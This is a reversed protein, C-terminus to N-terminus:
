EQQSPRLAETLRTALKARDATKEIVAHLRVALDPDIEDPTGTHAITRIGAEIAHMMVEHGMALVPMRLDSIVVDVGGTMMLQKAASPTDAFLTEHGRQRLTRMLFFVDDRIDDAVLVRLRGHSELTIVGGPSHLEVPPHTTVRDNAKDHGTEHVKM